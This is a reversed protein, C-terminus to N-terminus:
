PLKHSIALRTGLGLCSWHLDSGTDQAPFSPRPIQGPTVHIMPIDVFWKSMVYNEKLKIFFIKFNTEVLYSNKEKHANTTAHTSWDIASCGQKMQLLSGQSGLDDSAECHNLFCRSGTIKDKGLANNSIATEQEPKLTALGLKEKGYTMTTDIVERTPTLM